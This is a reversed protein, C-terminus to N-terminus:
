LLYHPPTVSVPRTMGQIARFCSYMSIKWTTMGTVKSNVKPIFSTWKVQIFTCLICQSESITCSNILVNLEVYPEFAYCDM